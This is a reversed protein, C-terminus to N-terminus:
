KSTTGLRSRIHEFPCSIGALEIFKDSFIIAANVAWEACGHGLCKAPFFPNGDGTLPNLKFLGSLDKQFKHQQDKPLETVGAPQWEPEYHTLANRLSILRTVNQYIKEGKKFQPDNLLDLFVEYKILISFKGTRPIGRCWMRTLLSLQEDKLVGLHEKDAEGAETFLENIMAELFTVASLITGLVYSSHESIAQDRELSTLTDPQWNQECRHAHRCFLAATQILQISLWTRVSIGVSETINIM